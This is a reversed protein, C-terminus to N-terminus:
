GIGQAFRFLGDPDYRRKLEVLRDLNEAYYSRQWDALAPDMFGQYSEGLSHPDFADFCADTWAQAAARDEETPKKFLGASASIQFEATRHVYATAARPM